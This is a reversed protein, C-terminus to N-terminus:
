FANLCMKILITRQCNRLKPLFALILFDSIQFGSSAFCVELLTADSVFEFCKLLNINFKLDQKPNKFERAKLRIMNM